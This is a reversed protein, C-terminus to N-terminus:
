QNTLPNSRDTLPFDVRCQRLASFYIANIIELVNGADRFSCALPEKGDMAALFNRGAERNSEAFYPIAFDSVHLPAAGPIEPIEDFPVIEYAAEDEPPYPSRSLRVFRDRDYRVSLTGKTGAVTVGMRVQRANQLGRRSEFAGNIGGPFRFRAYIDDGAVPGVPESPTLRDGYKLSHGNQYVEAFVHEPMGFLMCGIDLIHTGLVTLDEGGGREDEKGRGYFTLPTGIMGSDICRKLTRFVKSYRALHAAGALCHNKEALAILEDLESLESSVPKECFVHIGLELAAKAAPYHNVPLRSCLVVADPHENKLMERWSLCHKAAGIRKLDPPAPNPDALILETGPLGTFALHTGHSGKSPELSDYIIGIRKM